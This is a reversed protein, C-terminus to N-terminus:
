KLAIKQLAAWAQDADPKNQNRRYILAQKLHAYRAKIVADTDIAQHAPVSKTVGINPMRLPVQQTAVYHRVNSHM